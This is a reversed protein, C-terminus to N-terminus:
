QLHSPQFYTTSRVVLEVRGFETDASHRTYRTLESHPWDYGETVEPTQGYPFSDLMSAPITLTGSDPGECWIFDDLPAGHRANAGNIVVQVCADPDPGPTWTIETDVGDTMELGDATLNPDLTAVGVAGLSLSPFADGSWAAGIQDAADFLEAPLGAPGVYTGASWDEPQIDIPDGVGTIRLTGASISAPYPTCQDDATCIDGGTCAPDCFGLQVEYHRCSGEELTVGYFSPQLGDHFEGEIRSFVGAHFTDRRKSVDVYAVTPDAFGCADLIWDEVTPVEPPVTADTEAGGAGSSDLGSDNSSTCACLAFSAAVFAIEAHM